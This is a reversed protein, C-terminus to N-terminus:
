VEGRKAALAAEVQTRPVVALMLEFTIIRQGARQGTGSCLGMPGLGTHLKAELELVDGPFLPAHLLTKRVGGLVGVFEPLVGADEPVNSAAIFAALQAAAEIQCVGPVIPLGPFHGAFIPHDAPWLATGCGTTASLATATRLFLFPERHPLLDSVPRSAM